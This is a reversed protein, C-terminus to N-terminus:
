FDSYRRRKGRGLWPLVLGILVGGGVLAAGTVLTRRRAKEADYREQMARAAQEQEALSARLRENDGAMKFAPEAQVLREQASALERQLSDIRARAEALQKEASELRDKAAPESSLYRATIWGTRGDGTRIRAFSEPGLSQLVTVRAGSTVAGLSPADNRPAERVTVSINDSIYQQRSGQQAFALCPLFSLSVAM